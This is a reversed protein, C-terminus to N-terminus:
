LGKQANQLIVQQEIWTYLREMGVKLPQSPKWNLVEGILTNDSNRGRVGQPCNYGYKKLFEDGYINKIKIDKGSFRICMQALENITISENSGINVPQTYDSEILRMVGDVAEEIYLFSRQQKGDGWIEIENNESTIVKYSISAPAKPRDGIFCCGEGFINHFRAIRVDLGKNRRFSDYLSESGLKEIGYISDPKGLWASSEKLGQNNTDLQLSEAYCCASSSYFLKKIGYKSAINAVHYNMVGSDHIIDADNVGTFIYSAGGMQAAMMLCLDFSNIKDFGGMQNPALLVKRVNNVDRLDAIVVEDAKSEFFENYRIDVSRVWYGMSKLRDVLANGIFGNGGLVVATKM